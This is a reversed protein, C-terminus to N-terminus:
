IFHQTIRLNMKLSPFPYTHRLTFYQIPGVHPSVNEANVGTGNSVSSMEHAHRISNPEVAESPITSQPGTGGSESSSPGPQSVQNGATQLPPRQGLRSMQDRLVILDADIRGVKDRVEIYEHTVDMIKNQARDTIEQTEKDTKRGLQTV